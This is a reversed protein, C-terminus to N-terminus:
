RTRSDDAARRVAASAHSMLRELGDRERDLLDPTDQHAVELVRMLVLEHEDGSRIVRAATDLGDHDRAQMLVALTEARVEAQPHDVYRRVHEVAVDRDLDAITRIAAWLRNVEREAVDDDEGTLPTATGNLIDLAWSMPESPLM